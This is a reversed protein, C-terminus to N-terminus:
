LTSDGWASSSGTFVWGGSTKQLTMTWSGKYTVPKGKQTDSFTVPYILYARNKRVETYIPEGIVLSGHTAQILKNNAEYDDIWRKCTRWVYPPFGDIVAAQAACAAVFSKLDGKNFDGVWKRVVAQLESDDSASAFGGWLMSLACATAVTLDRITKM